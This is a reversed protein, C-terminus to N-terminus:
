SHLFWSCWAMCFHSIGRQGRTRLPLRPCAVLDIGRSNRAKHRLVLIHGRDRIACIRYLPQPLGYYLFTHALVFTNQVRAAQVAHLGLPQQLLDARQALCEFLWWEM